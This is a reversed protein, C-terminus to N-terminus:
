KIIIIYKKLLVNPMFFIITTFYPYFINFLFCQEWADHSCIRKNSQKM